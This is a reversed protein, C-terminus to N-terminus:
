FNGSGDAQYNYRFTYILSDPTPNPPTYGAYDVSLIELKAYHGDATKILFYEGAKPSFVHTNLDYNYWGTTLGADIALNTSTTDYSYGSLPATTCTDFLGMKTIVGGNGPGSAHSNIIINVFLIGFDWQSTASDTANVIASDKLSYFTYHSTSFPIEISDTVSVSPPPPPPPVEEKGCSILGTVIVAAAVLSIKLTKM